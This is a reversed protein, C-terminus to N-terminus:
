PEKISDLHTIIAELEKNYFKDPLASVKDDIEDLMDRAKRLKKGRDDPKLDHLIVEDLLNSLDCRQLREIAENEKGKEVGIVYGHDSFEYKGIFRYGIIEIYKAILIEDDFKSKMYLLIKGEAYDPEYPM